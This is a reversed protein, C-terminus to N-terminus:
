YKLLFDIDLLLLFTILFITAPAAVKAALLASPDSADAAVFVGSLGISLPNFPFTLWETQRQHKLPM